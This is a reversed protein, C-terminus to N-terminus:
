HIRGTQEQRVVTTGVCNGVGGGDGDARYEPEGACLVALKEGCGDKLRHLNPEINAEQLTL